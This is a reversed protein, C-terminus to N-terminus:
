VALEDNAFAGDEVIQIALRPAASYGEDAYLAVPSM